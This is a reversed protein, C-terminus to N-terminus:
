VSGAEKQRRGEAKIIQDARAKSIGTRGALQALTLKEADQIRLVEARRIATADGYLEQLAEALDRIAATKAEGGEMAGIRDLERRLVELASAVGSGSVTKLRIPGLRNRV